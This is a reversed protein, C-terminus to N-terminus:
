QAQGCNDGWSEPTPLGESPYDSATERDSRLAEVMFLDSKAGEEQPEHTLPNSTAAKDTM